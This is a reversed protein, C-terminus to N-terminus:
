SIDFETNGLNANTFVRDMELYFYGLDGDTDFETGFQENVDEWSKARVDEGDKMLIYFRYLKTSRGQTAFTVVAVDEPNRKEARVVLETQECYAVEMWQERIKEPVLHFLQNSLYWIHMKPKNKYGEDERDDIDILGKKVLSSGVGRVVKSNLGTDKCIEEFGVDSYNPEAFMRAAISRVVQNELVTVEAKKM